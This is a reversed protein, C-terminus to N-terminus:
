QEFIQLANYIIHKAAIRNGEALSKSVYSDIKGFIIFLYGDEQYEAKIEAMKLRYAHDSSMLSYELRKLSYRAKLVEESQLRQKWAMLEENLSQREINDDVVILQDTRSKWFLSCGVTGFLLLCVIVVRMM